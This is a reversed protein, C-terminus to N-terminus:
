KLGHMIQQSDTIKLLLELLEVDEGDNDSIYYMVELVRAVLVLEDHSRLM